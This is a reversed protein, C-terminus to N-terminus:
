RCVYMRVGAYIYIYVYIYYICVRLYIHTQTPTYLINICLYISLYISPCVSLYSICIPLTSSTKHIYAYVCVYMCVYIYIYVCVCMHIYTYIYIYTYVYMCICMCMHTHTCTFTGTCLSTQVCTHMSPYISTTPNAVRSHLRPGLWYLSDPVCSPNLLLHARITPDNVVTLGFHTSCCGSIPLDSPRLGCSAM